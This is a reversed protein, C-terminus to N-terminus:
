HLYQMRPFTQFSSVACVKLSFQYMPNIKHLDNMIFYLLSARAAAPRYLERAFNIEEETVKAEKSKAAIESATKKTTELNEVLEVDGLINEGASSLRALLNDELEKLIIKFENQQRTLDSKLQELDPREKAVVAGLLQDELGDKTVTFNILTAQAQMEPKYHPNALKTQLILRFKPNYEVEKEGMKIARGKRITNRGLLPDLVPDMTEGLNELLVVDGNSM